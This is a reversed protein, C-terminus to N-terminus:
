MRGLKIWSVTSDHICGYAFSAKCVLCCTLLELVM